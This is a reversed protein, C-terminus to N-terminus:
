GFLAPARDRLRAVHAETLFFYNTARAGRERPRLAVGDYIWAGYSRAGLFSFVRRASTDGDDPDGWVEILWAPHDRRIVEEAGALCAEEHGEVDCKIFGIPGCGEAIGDLPAARVRHLEGADSSGGDGPGVIRAQYFNGGGSSLSPVSMEVMDEVDSVAANVPTVNALGLKRVNSRLISFTSPIPEVSLVRGEPGVAESLVKSYVGVNAGLDVATSGPTVLARVVRLDPEDSEDLARLTRAYHHEKLPQLLRDPLWRLALSKLFEYLAHM